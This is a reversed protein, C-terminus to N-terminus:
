STVRKEKLLGTAPPAHTMGRVFSGAVSSRSLTLVADVLRDPDHRIKGSRMVVEDRVIREPRGKLRGESIPESAEAAYPVLRDPDVALSNVLVIDAVRGGVHRDVAELHDALSMGLTEGPQTMLNAVLVKTGRCGKVAAAVGPVLLVALLSTFLSGPGLVVLDANRVCDLVGPTPAVDSPTLWIRSVAAPAKGIRSEGSIRDGNRTEAELHVTQLSVPVVRGLSGLMMGAVELARLYSGHQEALAHLILNGVSHGALGGAGEYRHGFLRAFESGGNATLALLCNRLDGPPLGGRERRLRGSSGGDDATAVVATVDLPEGASVRRALGNLVTPIGSGGGLVAIRTPRKFEGEGGSM